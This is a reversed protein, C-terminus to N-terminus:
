KRSIKALQEELYPRFSEPYDYDELIEEVYAESLRQGKSIIHNFVIELLEMDGSQAALGIARGRRWPLFEGGYKIMIKVTEKAGKELAKLIPQGNNQNPDLGNQLLLDIAKTDNILNNLSADNIIAGSQVLITLADFSRVKTIADTAVTTTAGQSILYKILDINDAEVANTLPKGKETNVDGGDSIAEQAIEISLNKEALTKSANARRKRIVIEESTFPVFYDEFKIKFTKEIYNKVNSISQDDKWHAARIEFDPQVTVGFIFQNSAASKNFDWVYYQRNSDGLYYIWNAYTDKICHKTASNILVNAQFSKVEFIVVNDNNYVVEAGNRIGFRTVSEDIKVLLDAVSKNAVSDIYSYAANIVQNLNRDRYCRVFFQNQLAKKSQKDWGLEDFALALEQIKQKQTENATKYAQRFSPVTAGKDKANPNKVVFEGPLQAVWRAVARNIDIQTLDDVLREYGTRKDKEDPTINGYNDFGMPLQNLFQKNQILRYYLQQLDEFSIQEDFFFKVFAYTMGPNDKVLEKIKLYDKNDDSLEKAKKVLDSSQNKEFDTISISADPDEQKIQEIAKKRLYAKAAQVNENIKFNNYFLNFKRIIM